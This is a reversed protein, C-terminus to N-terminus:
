FSFVTMQTHRHEIQANNWCESLGIRCQFWVAQGTDLVPNPCLNYCPSHIGRVRNQAAAQGFTSNLGTGDFNSTCIQHGQILCVPSPVPTLSQGLHQLNTGGDEGPQDVWLGARGVGLRGIIWGGWSM